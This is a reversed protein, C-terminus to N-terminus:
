GLNGTLLVGDFAGPGSALLMRSIEASTGVRSVHVVAKGNATASSISQGYVELRLMEWVTAQGDTTYLATGM